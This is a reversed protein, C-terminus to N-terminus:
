LSVKSSELFSLKKKEEKEGNVIKRERERQEEQSCLSLPVCQFTSETLLKTGM